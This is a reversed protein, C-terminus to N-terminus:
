FLLMQRPDDEQKAEEEELRLYMLYTKYCIGYVPQVYRRWVQRHCRSQNGPEYHERAISRIQAARKFTSRHHPKRPKM